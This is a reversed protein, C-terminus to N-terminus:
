DIHESFLLDATMEENKDCAFYVQVVLNRDFGLECLRNIAAEEEPAVQIQVGEDELEGEGNDGEMLARMFEEPNQQILEALQPNSSAIQQLFPEVMEPNNQILEGIQMLDERQTSERQQQGSSAVAAAEFLDTGPATEASTSEVGTNSVPQSQGDDQVSRSGAIPEENNVPLGTLLYEVARDPNNFASRLAAEVQSRDYGMEMINRIANERDNGVAFTSANFSESTNVPVSAVSIGPAATTTTKSSETSSNDIKNELNKPEEKKFVNPLMFIIVDNEKVKFAEFNKDDQLVKGSYVFKIKSAESNKMTALKEKASFITDTPDVDLFVKEKKLDKFVIKM